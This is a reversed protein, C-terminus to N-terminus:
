MESAMMLKRGMAGSGGPVRWTATKARAAPICKQTQVLVTQGPPSHPTTTPPLTGTM